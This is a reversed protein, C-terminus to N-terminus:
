GVRMLPVLDYRPPDITHTHGGGSGGDLATSPTAASYSADGASGRSFAQGGVGGVIAVSPGVHSHAPIQATTLTTSGSTSSGGTTGAATVSARVFLGSLSPSDNNGNCIQWWYFATGALGRGQDDFNDAVDAASLNAWIIGKPPVLASLEADRWLPSTTSEADRGMRTITNCLDRAWRLVAAASEPPAPAQPAAFPPVRVAAYRM